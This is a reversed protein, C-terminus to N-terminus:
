GVLLDPWDIPAAVDVARACISVPEVLADLEPDLNALTDLVLNSLQSVDAVSAGPPQARVNEHVGVVIALDEPSTIRWAVSWVKRSRPAAM